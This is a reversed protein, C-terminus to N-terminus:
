LVCFAVINEHTLLTASGQWDDSELPEYREEIFLATPHVLSIRGHRLWHNQSVLFVKPVIAHGVDSVSFRINVADSRGEVCVGGFPVPKFKEEPRAKVEGEILFGDDTFHKLKGKGHFHCGRYDFAIRDLLYHRKAAM